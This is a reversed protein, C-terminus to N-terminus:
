EAFLSIFVDQDSFSEVCAIVTIALSRGSRTKSSMQMGSSSPRSTRLRTRALSSVLCVGTTNRVDAVSVSVFTWAKREPALSKRGLGTFALSSTARTAVRQQGLCMDIVQGIIGILQFM